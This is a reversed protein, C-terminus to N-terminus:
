EHGARAAPLAAEGVTMTKTGEVIGVIRFLESGDRGWLFTRGM